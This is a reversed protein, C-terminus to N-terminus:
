RSELRHRYMTAANAQTAKITEAYPTDRIGVFGIQANEGDIRGTAAEDGYQFWHAGVIQPNDLASTLYATLKRGRDEQNEASFLGAWFPGRDLGGFHFEGIMVPADLGAPLRIDRVSACYRNYSIVDCSEAAAQEVM